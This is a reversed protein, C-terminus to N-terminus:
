STLAAVIREATLPLEALETGLARNVANVVAAATPVTCIEGISKAGYPGGPEGEEVLLIDVPPMDPANVLPYRSFTDNRPRGSPDYTLEESLAMGIGMQVGGYIQGRLLRPNIARGVDHVALFDTVRTLGTLRDVEVEAFHVGFSAPNSQPRFPHYVAVEERLRQATLCVAEGYSLPRGDDFLIKGDDLSLRDPSTGTSRAVQDLLLDRLRRAAEYACAGCVYTVRSAVCGM